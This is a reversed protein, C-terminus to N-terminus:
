AINMQAYGACYKPIMKEKAKTLQVKMQHYNTIQLVSAMEICFM